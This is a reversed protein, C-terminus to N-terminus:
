QCLRTRLFDHLREGWCIIFHRVVQRDAEVILLHRGCIYAFVLGQLYIRLFVNAAALESFLSDQIELPASLGPALESVTTRPLPAPLWRVLRELCPCM